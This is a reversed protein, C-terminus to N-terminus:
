LVHTRESTLFRSAETRNFEIVTGIGKKRIFWVPSKQYATEASKTRALLVASNDLPCVDFLPFADDLKARCSNRIFVDAVM